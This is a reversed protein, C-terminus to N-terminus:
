ALWNKNAPAPFEKAEDWGVNIYANPTAFLPRIYCFHQCIFIYNISYRILVIEVNKSKKTEYFKEFFLM